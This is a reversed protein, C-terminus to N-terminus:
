FLLASHRACPRVMPCARGCAMCIQPRICLVDRKLTYSFKKIDSHQVPLLAIQCTVAGLCPPKHPPPSVMPFMADLDEDSLPKNREDMRAGVQAPQVPRPVDPHAPAAARPHPDAHGHGGHPHGRPDHGGHPNRGGDREPDGRRRRGWAGQCQPQAAWPGCPDRGVQRFVPPLCSFLSGPTLLCTTFTAGPPVAGWAVWCEPRAAWPQLLRLGVQFPCPPPPPVFPSPPSCLPLPSPSLAWLTLCAILDSGPACGECSGSPSLPLPPILPGFAESLDHRYLGSM